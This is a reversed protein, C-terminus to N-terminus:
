IRIPEKSGDNQLQEHNEILYDIAKLFNKADETAYITSDLDLGLIRERIESRYADDNVLRATITLFEEETDAACEHLGARYLMASGIRGYWKDSNWTVTPVRCFLSDSITNCGGFHHSDITLDGQEILTMYAEYELPPMIEISEGLQETIDRIFPIRDNARSLSSGLFVRIKIQRDCREILKALVQVYRHNIKQSWYLANILIPADTPTPKKLGKYTYIPKNHIVGMGPLLLLRESYNQEPHDKIEVENGSVFYDIYAGFTSVSHGLFSMQIPAIRMNALLISIDIMGIDAFIVVQFDNNQVCSVDLGTNTRSVNRVDDFLSTDTNAQDNLNILTLHYHGKLAKIFEMYNRCVSTRPNWLGSILAVKKKDPTNIIPPLHALGKRVTSNVIPKVLQDLNDGAYTSGFYAEQIQEPIELQPHQFAFHERLNEYGVKCQLAGYYACAYHSYWISAARPNLDFIVKRDMKTLCRANFLTLVKILNNQQPMVIALHADTTRFGSIAVLNMLVHNSAILRHAYQESIVFDQETFIALFSKIFSDIYHQAQPDVATFQMTNLQDIIQLFRKCLQDHERNVFQQMWDSSRFALDPQTPPQIQM